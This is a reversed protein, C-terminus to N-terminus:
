ILSSYIEDTQSVVAAWSYKNNSSNRAADLIEDIDITKDRANEIISAIVSFTDEPDNLQFVSKEVYDANIGAKTTLVFLHNQYAELIANNATAYHLPLLMFLSNSLVEVYSQHSLRQTHRIVEVSDPYIIKDFDVGVLHFKFNTARSDNFISNVFDWDRYNKGVICITPKGDLLYAKSRPANNATVIGHPVYRVNIIEYARRYEPIVRTTLSLACDSIKICRLTLKNFIERALKKIVSSDNHKKNFWEPSLHLTMVIKKKFIKLVLPSIFDMGEPYIYHVLDVRLGKFIIMIEVLLRRIIAGIFSYKDDCFIGTFDFINAGKSYEMIRGYGSFEDHFSSNYGAILVKASKQSKKVM